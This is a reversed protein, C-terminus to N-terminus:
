EDCEENEVVERQEKIAYTLLGYLVIAVGFGAFIIPQNGYEFWGAIFMGFAMVVFTRVATFIALMIKEINM